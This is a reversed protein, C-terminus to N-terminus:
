SMMEGCLPDQPRQVLSPVLLVEEARQTAFIESSFAVVLFVPLCEAPLAVILLKSRAALPTLLGYHLSEDGGEAGLPVGLAEAALNPLSLSPPCSEFGMLLLAMMELIQVHFFTSVKM